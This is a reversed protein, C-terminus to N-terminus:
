KSVTEEGRGRFPIFFGGKEQCSLCSTIRVTASHIVKKRKKLWYSVYGLISFISGRRKKGGDRNPNREELHTRAKKQTQQYLLCYPSKEEEGLFHQKGKGVSTHKGGIGTTRNASIRLGPFECM